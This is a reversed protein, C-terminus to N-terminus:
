QTSAPWSVPSVRVKQSISFDAFHIGPRCAPVTMSGAATAAPVACMSRSGISPAPNRNLAIFPEAGRPTPLTGSRANGRRGERSSCPRGPLRETWPRKGNRPKTRGPAPRRRRRHRRGGRYREHRVAAARAGTASQSHCRRPRHGAVREGSAAGPKGTGASRATGRWAEQTRTDPPETCRDPGDPVAHVAGGGALSGCQGPPWSIRDPAGGTRASSTVCRRRHPLHGAPLEAHGPVAHRRAGGRSVASVRRSPILSAHEPYM